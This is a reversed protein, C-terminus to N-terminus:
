HEFGLLAHLAELNRNIDRLHANFFLDNGGYGITEGLEALLRELTWIRFYADQRRDIPHFINQSLIGRGGM